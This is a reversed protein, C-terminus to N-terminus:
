CRALDLRPRGADDEAGAHDAEAGDDAAAERAGLPDDGHVHGLAPERERRLVTRRLREDAAVVDDLPDGLRGSAEAGVVGELRGAVDADHALRDLGRAHAPAERRHAAHGALPLREVDHGRKRM